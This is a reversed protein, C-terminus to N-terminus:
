GFLFPRKRLYYSDIITFGNDFNFTHAGRLKKDWDPEVKIVQVEEYDSETLTLIQNINFAKGYRGSCDQSPRYLKGEHTFIRGAPRATRIDSVVPNLPHSIWNDSLFDESYYLYLEPSGDLSSNIKDIVTFLWWKGNYNLLTTDVANLDIMLSKEFVWKEPFSNCRYLDITRNEGTEPIMFYNGDSEFIFPYSMHYPKEIIKQVNLLEGKENLELISIHGKNTRYIFEEVFVYYKGFKRIIFPDAWFKDKPPQLKVFSNYSNHLFDNVGNNKFLLIWSFPDSYFIKKFIKRSLISLSAALNVVSPLFSPAKIRLNESSKAAKYKRGLMELYSDGYRSIGHIVRTTFLSARSFLKHRNLHISYSCTSEWANSIIRNEKGEDKLIVLESGTVPNRRVVEFYGATSDKDTVLNEMPYSWVGYRPIKLIEGTLMGFGFKLIIDPNYNRIEAIVEGSFEEYNNILGTIASLEPVDKILPQINKKVSYSNGDSFIFADLKNHLRFVVSGQGKSRKVPGKANTIILSVSAFDSSAIEEVIKYKWAPLLYSDLLIGIKLKGAM